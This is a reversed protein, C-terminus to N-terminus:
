SWAHSALGYVWPGNSERNLFRRGKSMTTVTEAVGLGSQQLFEAFVGDRERTDVRAFRGALKKLHFATLHVADQDSRAVIPGIVHGRGFERCMSYGVVEGGRSLTAISADDSLLALLRARNTGFARADLATIDGLRDSPLDSLEGDLAPMPPLTQPVQGQRMYDIAESTFGLSIYLPYAPHTANLALNRDGCQELVQEMLWRGGGQAQARPTTIVLGITAFDDGHPFWMASGFVRGIGDVAVIGHGARRLLDWDKPRHPWRVSISLAHLLEVDVDNIDRAVLEFSKLRVSRQM